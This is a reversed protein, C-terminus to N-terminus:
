QLTGTLFVKDSPNTSDKSSDGTVFFRIEGKYNQVPLSIPFYVNNEPKFNGLSKARGETAM